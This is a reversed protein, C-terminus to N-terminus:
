KEIRVNLVLGDIDLTEVNEESALPAIEISSALVQTGIYDKFRTIAEDAEESPAFCINIRDTIEYGRSKRINQIRNV